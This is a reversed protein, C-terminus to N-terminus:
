EMICENEDYDKTALKGLFEWYRSACVGTGPRKVSLNDETFREGKSIKKCTILSKRVLTRTDLESKNPLKRGDGLASEVERISRVMAALEDPELSAAHDPGPLNRNLTFHKEIIHAGLAAAAIAITIGCTHDSYGVPLHFAARLTEMTKLNVEPFLAPYNTVCHLLTVHEKLAAQGVQSLYADLFNKPSLSKETDNLYGFALIALATEIDALTTMGTSLIIPKGTKAANLLLPANTIEGSAIKIHSINLTQTLFHLSDLDFPTSLFQINRMRCHEFLLAHDDASLELKKLMTYQSEHVDTNALQYLAKPADGSLLNDAKFTQFKVADAGSSKAIDILEKAIDLSGNHNVGAEAIIFTKKM